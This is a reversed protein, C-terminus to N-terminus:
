ICTYTYCKECAYLKRYRQKYCSMKLFFFIMCLLLMKATQVSSDESVDEDIKKSCVHQRRLDGYFIESCLNNKFIRPWEFLKIIMISLELSKFNLFFDVFKAPM